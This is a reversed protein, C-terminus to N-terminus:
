EDIDFLELIGKWLLDYKEPWAHYGGSEIATGDSLVILLGWGDGDM